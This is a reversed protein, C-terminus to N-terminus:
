GKPPPVEVEPSACALLRDGVNSPLEVHDKTEVVDPTAAAFAVAHEENVEEEAPISAAATPGDVRLQGAGYILCPGGVLLLVLGCVLLVARFSGPTHPSRVM